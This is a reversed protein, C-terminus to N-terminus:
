TWTQYLQSRAGNEIFEYPRTRKFSLAQLCTLYVRGEGRFIGKNVNSYSRKISM